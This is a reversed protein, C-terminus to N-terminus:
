GSYHLITGFIGVAFVDSTLHGWVDHLDNITGSSMASWTSGNYHLIIGGEGVAFVDSASSGWIGGLVDTTGSSMASWASGNYHLITGDYGVAFVDSSSNGWVSYLLNGQPLPNQWTWASTTAAENVTQTLPTSTSAAFSADGSYVATISHTGASLTSTTYTAQGSSITATGLTTTGEKFTVTGTPTGSTASVTATFTVADGYTSPNQSSTVTTTTSALKAKGCAPLGVLAALLLATVIIVLIHRGLKSM